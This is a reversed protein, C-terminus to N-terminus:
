LRVEVGAAAMAAKVSAISFERYHFISAALVADAQGDLVAQVLHEPRGAGGSAIVPVPVREGLRYLLECDYGDKTGDRDMSTLLIEGAGLAVTREAWQLADLGTPESGSRTYVEWGARDRHRKVDIAVVTCQSGFARAMAAVFDPEAIAHSNVSIKDAGNKLLLEAQDLSRIGGGITLPIFCQDAIGRVTQLLTARAEITASIDLMCLEDAGEANYRASIEVPDGADRLSLFNVGKVVRGDKVDLCPILRVATM